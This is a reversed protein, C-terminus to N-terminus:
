AFSTISVSYSNKKGISFSSEFAIITIPISMLDRAMLSLELFRNYHKRWWSLVELKPNQRKSLRSKELYLDLQSKQKPVVLVKMISLNRSMLFNCNFSYWLMYWVFNLISVDDKMDEDHDDM